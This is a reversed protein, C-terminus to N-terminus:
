REGGKRSESSQIAPVFVVSVDSELLLQSSSSIRDLIIRLKSEPADRDLVADGSASAISSCYLAYRVLLGDANSFEECPSYLEKRMCDEEMECMMEAAGGLSNWVDDAAAEKSVGHEGEHPDSCEAPDCCSRHPVGAAAGSGEGGVWASMLGAEFGTAFFAHM